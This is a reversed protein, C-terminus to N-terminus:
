TNRVHKAAQEHGDWCKAAVTAAFDVGARTALSWHAGHEEAKYSDEAHQEQQWVEVVDGYTWLEEAV